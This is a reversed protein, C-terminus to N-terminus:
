RTAPLEKLRVSEPAPHARKAQYLLRDAEALLDHEDRQRLTSLGISATVGLPALAEDIGAKVQDAFAHARHRPTRPLMVVFEDGGVRAALDGERLLGEVTDAVTRLAADGSSHGYSDNVAKFNDLDLLLLSLPSRDSRAAEIAQELACSLSRRNALGTLDDTQAQVELAARSHANDLAVAAVSAFGDILGVEDAGFDREGSRYVGLVGLLRDHAVLPVCVVAEPDPTTGPVLGARPDLHASNSVLTRRERAAHGTLGEGVRISMGALQEAGEGEAVAVRLDGEAGAEWVAAVDCAVLERLTAVVSTLVSEVAQEAVVARVLGILRRYGGSSDVPDTASIATVAFGQRLLM